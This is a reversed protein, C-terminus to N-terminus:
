RFMKKRLKNGSIIMAAQDVVGKSRLIDNQVSFHGNTIIGNDHAAQM